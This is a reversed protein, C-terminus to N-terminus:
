HRKKSSGKICLFKIAKSSNTCYPRIGCDNFTESFSFASIENKKGPSCYLHSVNVHSTTVAPSKKSSNCKCLNNIKIKEHFKLSNLCNCKKVM